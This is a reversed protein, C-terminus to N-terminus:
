FIGMKKLLICYFHRFLKLAEQEFKFCKVRLFPMVLGEFSLSYLFLLKYPKFNSLYSIVLSIILDDADEIAHSDKAEIEEIDKIVGEEALDKEETYLDEEETYLDEEETHLDEEEETHLDEMTDQGVDEKVPHAEMVDEIADEEKAHDLGVFYCVNLILM